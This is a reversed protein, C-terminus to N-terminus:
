GANEERATDSAVFDPVQGARFNYYFVNDNWGGAFKSDQAIGPDQESSLSTGSKHTSKMTVQVTYNTDSMDYTKWEGQLNSPYCNELIKAISAKDTYDVAVSLDQYGAPDAQNQYQDNHSNTVTVSQVDDKNIETDMWLDNAKLWAITNGYGPYVPFSIQSSGYTDNLDKRTLTVSGIETNAHAFSYCFNVIDQAYAKKFGDYDDASATKQGYGADYTMTAGDGDTGNLFGADHYMPFYGERYEETGTVADM